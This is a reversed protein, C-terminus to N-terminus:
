IWCMAVAAFTVLMPPHEKSPPLCSRGEAADGLMGVMANVDSVLNAKTATTAFTTM